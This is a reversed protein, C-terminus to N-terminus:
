GWEKAAVLVVHHLAKNNIIATTFMLGDNLLWWGCWAGTAYLVCDNM